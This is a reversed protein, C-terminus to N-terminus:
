RIRQLVLHNHKESPELDDPRPSGVTRGTVLTLTDGEIRYIGPSHLGKGDAYHRDLRTPSTNPNLEIHYEFEADRRGRQRLTMRGGAITATIRDGAHPTGNARVLLWEGQLRQLDTARRAPKPFPAPAGDAVLAALLWLAVAVGRM